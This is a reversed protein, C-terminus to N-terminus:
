SILMICALMLLFGETHLEPDAPDGTKGLRPPLESSGFGDGQALGDRYRFPSVDVTWPNCCYGFPSETKWDGNLSCYKSSFGGITAFLFLTGM